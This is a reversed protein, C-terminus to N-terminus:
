SESRCWWWWWWWWWWWLLRLCLVYVAALDGMHQTVMVAVLEHVDTAPFAAITITATTTTITTTTTTITTTTKTSNHSCAFETDM